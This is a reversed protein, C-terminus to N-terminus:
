FGFGPKLRRFGEERKGRRSPADGRTGSFGRGAVVAISYVLEINEKPKGDLSRIRTHIAKGVNIVPEDGELYYDAIPTFGFETLVMLYLQQSRPSQCVVAPIGKADVYDVGGGSSSALSRGSLLLVTGARYNGARFIEGNQFNDVVRLEPAQEVESYREKAFRQMSIYEAALKAREFFGPNKPPENWPCSDNFGHGGWDEPVFIGVVFEPREDAM